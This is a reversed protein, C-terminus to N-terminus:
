YTGDQIGEYIGRNVLMFHEKDLGAVAKFGCVILTDYANSCFAAHTPEDGLKAVLESADALMEMLEDKDDMTIGRVM